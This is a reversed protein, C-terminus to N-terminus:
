KQCSLALGDNTNILAAENQGMSSVGTKHDSVIIRNASHYVNFVAKPTDNVYCSELVVKGNQDITVAQSTKVLGKFIMQNKNSINLSTNPPFKHVICHLGESALLNSSMFFVMFMLNTKM